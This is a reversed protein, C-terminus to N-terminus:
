ATDGQGASTVKVGGNGMEEIEAFQVKREEDMCYNALMVAISDQLGVEIDAKPKGGDRVDLLFSELEKYEPDKDETPVMIGKTYLWRRAYEMEKEIFGINSSELDQIGPIIPLGEGQELMDAVTAGATWAEQTESQEGMKEKMPDRFWMGEGGPILTIEIAGDTGMIVERCGDGPTRRGQIHRNTMISSYLLKEGEPYEFILQINDYIDRGDKWYDLGGVGMVSKPAAGIMWDAVDVQHSMLEACLGGSYKRYLRWNIQEERSPDKVGRRWSKNRHWQASIHTIKGVVGKEVMQKATRYFSSYRRQLGVQIVQNPHEEHLTRLSHVEEPTFVLSKECFVHKGAELADKMVPYHLFLPTTIFVAEIDDQELLRRYDTYPTPKGDFIKLAKNLNREYIDCIAVCNGIDIHQLHRKLLRNGRSGPGIFGYNVQKGAAKATRILPAANARPLLAAAAATATGASKVFTRRNLDDRNENALSKKTKM